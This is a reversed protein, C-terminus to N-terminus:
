VFCLVGHLSTLICRSAFVSRFIFALLPAYSYGFSYADVVSTDQSLMERERERERERM